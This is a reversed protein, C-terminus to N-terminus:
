RLVAKRCSEASGLTCIDVSFAACKASAESRVAIRPAEHGQTEIGFRERKREVMKDVALRDRCHSCSRLHPPRGVTAGITFARDRVRVKDISRHLAGFPGQLVLPQPSARGRSRTLTICRQASRISSSATVSARRSATDEVRGIAWSISPSMATVASCIRKKASNASLSPLSTTGVEAEVKPMVSVSGYPTM